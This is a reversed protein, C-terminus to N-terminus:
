PDPKGIFSPFASGKKPLKSEAIPVASGAIPVKALPKLDSDIAEL